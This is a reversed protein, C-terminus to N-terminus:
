QPMSEILNNVVEVAIDNWEKATREWLAEIGAPPTEYWNLPKKLHCWLHEITNMDPSQVPWNMVCMNNTKFWETAKKSKHKPDNDQQFIVAGKDVEWHDLSGLLDDELISRYLEGNMNGDIRVIFGVGEGHKMCGWAMIRGGSHKVTPQTTRASPKEGKRKWCWRCGDFGFHNIKTEDSWVVHKWDDISYDQHAIAWDYRDCMYRKTLLPVEQVVRANLGEDQLGNRVTQVSVSINTTNQLVKTVAVADDCKSSTILCTAHRLDNENLKWSHGSKSKPVMPRHESAIRTISGVSVGTLQRIQSYSLANDFRYLVRSITDKSLKHM